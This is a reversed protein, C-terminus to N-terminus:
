CYLSAPAPNSADDVLLGLQTHYATENRLVWLDPVVEEIDNAKRLAEFPHKRVSVTYRQLERLLDRHLEGARLRAILPRSDHAANEPNAYPVLISVSGDEEILHFRDAATRFQIQCERADKTLLDQIGHKDLLDRANSYYQNFYSKFIEPVLLNNPHNYLISKCADEGFRLLGKPSPHPPVFVNVQGKSKLKGERNCRGAAQAISDLGALARYVVPFDVDVGAEILQTSVVRVSKKDLLRQKIKNIEVSRHEGCMTASLHITGPPMRRHLERCDSRTNVIALVSEHRAVQAAIEDWNGATNLNDPLAITVRELQQYLEGPDDIIETAKDLGRLWERNFTDKRTELAPQTATCLVFTVGYHEVLLRMTDLIPQLLEPPLLQAEDLVIVSNVLNHLKRCRSTRAAFLSEFLQVNTTVILPADWNETALRNQPSDKESVLSCHHELVANDFISRFVDATQEIISTYPIAYVIRRKNHQLAHELAFAMSSLTKGGGTPVTLTYLGPAGKAKQRCQQLVTARLRNVPTDAAKQEKQLMYQNFQEVLTDIAPYGGRQESRDRNMFAETDLFDADTLCSFLMRIWLHLGGSGGINNPFPPPIEELLEAPADVTAQQLLGRETDERMRNELSANGAGDAASWDPLGAHHGAILYMLPLALRAFQQQAHLAGASAHNVRGQASEVLHAEYGSSQRIYRQFYDSFKGLDHWLGAIRGWSAADFEAAMAEALTAVASLHERLSQSALTSDKRVHAIPSLLSM